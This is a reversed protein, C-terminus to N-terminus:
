RNGEGDVRRRRWRGFPHGFGPLCPAGRRATVPGSADKEFDIQADVVKLFFRPETEPFIEAKDQGTAQTWLHEGDRTASLV